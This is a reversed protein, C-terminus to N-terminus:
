GTAISRGGDRRTSSNRMGPGEFRNAIAAWDPEGTRSLARCERDEELVRVADDRDLPVGVVEIGTRRGGGGRRV